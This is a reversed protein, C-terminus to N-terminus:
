SPEPDVRFKEGCAVEDQGKERYGNPVRRTVDDVYSTEEIGSTTEGPTGFLTVVRLRGTQTIHGVGLTVANKRGPAAVVTDRRETAAARSGGYEVKGEVKIAGLTVGATGGVTWTETVTRVDGVLSTVDQTAGTSCNTVADGYRHWEMEQPSEEAAEFVCDSKRHEGDTSVGGNCISILEDRPLGTDSQAPAAILVGSACLAASSLLTVAARRTATTIRM